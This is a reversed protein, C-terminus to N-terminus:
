PTTTYEVWSLSDEAWLYTKGDSPYPTLPIFANSNTDYHHVGAATNYSTQLWTGSLNLYNTIFDTGRDQYDDSVIVGRLVVNNSDIEVFHAM